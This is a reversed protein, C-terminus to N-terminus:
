TAIDERLLLILVEVREFHRSEVVHCVCYIDQSVTWSNKFLQRCTM